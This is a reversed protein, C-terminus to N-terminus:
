IRIYRSLKDYDIPIFFDWGANNLHDSETHGTDYVDFRSQDIPEILRVEFYPM